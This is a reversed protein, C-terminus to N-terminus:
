RRAQYYAAVTKEATREWTFHAARDLGRIRLNRAHDADTLVRTLAKALEDVNSPNVMVAADGTVEPISSVNSCVVPLGCAMAELVPLGFGEYSSPFALVNAQQYADLLAPGDVYGQWQIWKDIGARQARQRAEPYRVDEPGIIRLRAEPVEALVLGFAKVLEEVKKYPDLRGVYLITKERREIKTVPQYDKSVGEPIAVVKDHASEPLGLREIVDKRSSESPTIIVDARAGVETILKKYVPFFRTKKSKPAHDPFILPILDHITVVCRTRGGRNRPFPMLPIMYNTSHFVDIRLQKLLKPMQIQSAPSFPSCSIRYAIFRETYDPNIGRLTRAMVEDNDFFLVYDNENDVMAIHKILEWTYSGIGSIEPFIWRADIGIRM